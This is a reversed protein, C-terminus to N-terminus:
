LPRGEERVKLRRLEEIRRELVDCLLDDVKWKPAKIDLMKSIEMFEDYTKDTMKIYCGKRRRMAWRIMRDALTDSMGKKTLSEDMEAYEIMQCYTEECLPILKM